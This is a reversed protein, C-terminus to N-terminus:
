RPRSLAAELLRKVWEIEDARLGALRATLDALGGRQLAGAPLESTFLEAPDVKLAAALKEVTTFSAGTAAAEIRDVMDDSLEAAEALQRQTWGLRKRHAAVLRGFRHKLSDM